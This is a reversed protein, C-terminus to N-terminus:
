EIVDLDSKTPTKIVFCTPFLKSVEHTQTVLRQEDAPRDRPRSPATVCSWVFCARSKM